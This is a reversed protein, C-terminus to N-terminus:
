NAQKRGVHPIAEDAGSGLAEILERSSFNEIDRFAQKLLLETKRTIRAKGTELRNILIESLGTQNSLEAQTWGAICRLIKIERGTMTVGCLRNWCNFM